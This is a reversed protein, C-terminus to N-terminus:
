NKLTLMKKEDITRELTSKMLEYRKDQLQTQLTILDYIRKNSVECRKTWKCLSIDKIADDVEKKSIKFWETNGIRVDELYDHLMDEENKGGKVTKYIYLKDPNGTQLQKLRKEPNKSYGVKCKSNDGKQFIFYVKETM